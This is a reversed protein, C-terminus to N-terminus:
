FHVFVRKEIKIVKDILEGVMGNWKGNVLAGNLGDEVLKLKYTFNCISAIKDMLDVCYGKFQDNGILTKNDQKARRMVYPAEKKLCKNLKWTINFLILLVRLNFGLSHFPPILM